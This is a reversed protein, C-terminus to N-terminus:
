KGKGPISDRYRSPRFQLGTLERVRPQEWAGWARQSATIYVSAWASLVWYPLPSYSFTRPRAFALHLEPQSEPGFLPSKEAFAYSTIQQLYVTGTVGWEPM